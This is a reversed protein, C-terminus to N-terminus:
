ALHTFRALLAAVAYESRLPRPGINVPTMGAAALKAVEYETFGGEPGVACVCPSIVASSFWPCPTPAGPHAVYGEADALLAALEDEVFPKFRRKLEIKPLVTDGAQELGLILQERFGEDTLLPSSWYSKEVKWTNIIFFRKVGMATANQLIKRMTKPRQLAVLLTAPSAPPPNGSLDAIRLSVVNRDVSEVIGDGVGGGLLGVKLSRGPEARLVDAIHQSRVGSVTALDSEIFDNKELLIINM